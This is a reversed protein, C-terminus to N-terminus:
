QKWRGVAMPQLIGKALNTTSMMTLNSAESETINGDHSGWVPRGTSGTSWATPVVVPPHAFSQPFTWNVAKSSYLSGKVVNISLPPLTLTTQWCIQTGNEFRIWAGNGNSGRTVLGDAYSETAMDTNIDVHGFSTQIRLGNPADVVFRGSNSLLFGVKHGYNSLMAIGKEGELSTKIAFSDNGTPSPYITQSAMRINQGTIRINEQLSIRGTEGDVLIASSYAGVKNNGRYGISAYYDKEALMGLGLPERTTSGVVATYLGTTKGNKNVIRIGSNTLRM